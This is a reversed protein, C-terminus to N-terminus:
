GNPRLLHIVHRLRDVVEDVMAEDDADQLVDAAAHIETTLDLTTGHAVELTETEM